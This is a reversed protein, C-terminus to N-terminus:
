YVESQWNVEITHFLEEVQEGTLEYNPFDSDSLSYCYVATASSRLLHLNQYLMRHEERNDGTFVWVSLLATQRPAPEEEPEGPVEPLYVAFTTKYLSDSSSKVSQVAEGWSEPWLLYWSESPSHYTAGVTASAVGGAFDCWTLRSRQESDGSRGVPVDLAGDGDIDASFVSLPRWTAGGSGSAPDITENAAVRGDYSIVDTVYGGALAQSDIYLARDGEATRGFQMNAVSKVDLCMAVDLVQAYEGEQWRYVRASYLGTISDRVTFGLEDAGDGDIDEIAVDAYSLDLLVEFGNATLRLLTMGYFSTDSFGWGLAVALGNGFSPYEIVRLANGYGEAMDFRAFGSDTQRFAYVQYVNDPTRFFALAEDVGDGDLDILQVAQRNAGTEAVAYAAGGGLIDDLEQQLQLYEGPLKPLALLGDGYALSCGSAFLLLLAALLLRKLAHVNM